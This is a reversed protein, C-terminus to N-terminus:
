SDAPDVGANNGESSDSTEQSAAASHTEVGGQRSGDEEVNQEVPQDEAQAAAQKERITKVSLHQPSLERPPEWAQPQPVAQIQRLREPLHGTRNYEILEAQTLSRMQEVTLFLATNTMENKINVQQPRTDLIPDKGGKMRLEILKAQAMASKDMKREGKIIEQFATLTEEDMEQLRRFFAKNAVGGTQEYLRQFWPAMIHRQVTAHNLGLEKAAKAATGNRLVAGFIRLDQDTVRHGEILFEDSHPDSFPM